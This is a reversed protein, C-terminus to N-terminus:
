GRCAGSPAGCRDGGVRREELLTVRAAMERLAETLMGRIKFADDSSQIWLPHAQGTLRAM